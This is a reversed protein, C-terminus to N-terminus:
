SMAIPNPTNEPGAAKEIMSNEVDGIPVKVGDEYGPGTLHYALQRNEVVVGKVKYSGGTGDLGQLEMGAKFKVPVMQNHVIKTEITQEGDPGDVLYAPEGNYETHDLVTYPGTEDGAWSIHPAGYLSTGEDHIYNTAKFKDLLGM